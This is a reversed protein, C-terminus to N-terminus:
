CSGPVFSCDDALVKDPDRAVIVEPSPDSAVVGPDGGYNSGESAEPGSCKRPLTKRRTRGDPPPLGRSRYWHLVARTATDRNCGLKAAIEQILFQQDWLEKARGALQEPLTPRALRKKCSRGDPPPLGRERHWRAVAEAVINRNWGVEAAIARYTLGQDWLAKVQDVIVTDPDPERFDIVIETGQYPLDGPTRPPGSSAMAGLAKRLQVAGIVFRGQMYHRQRDPVRIERVWIAGGVLNRLALAAAPVCGRLSEALCGFQQEVWEMTPEPTPQTEDPRLNDLRAVLATRDRRREALRTQVKPSAVATEISDVLRAIKRDLEAVAREMEQLDTPRRQNQERWVTLTEQLVLVKWTASALIQQGIIELIMREARERRIQTKCECMGNDWNPCRLYKGHAGSVRFIVKCAECRVLGSLLHRPNSAADGTRSGRLKGDPLRRNEQVRANEALRSAAADMWEDSIIGLEPFTRTWKKSAEEPREEQSVQGTLPNRINKDKGWTWVGVYKKNKLLETVQQHHWYRTTARHDKPAGLHNLTRAIWRVSRKEGVFWHFIRIVWPATEDDIVYAMRPKAHRGKRASESGPIPVSKFGFYYDGVCFGALVTGEQGRFVNESLEKIYREHLVSFITALVEWGDRNSDVGETVSIIRVRYVYVLKKLVPMTIVSERALRSLSHFYVVRFRGTAAAALMAELGARHLKTGSIAEDAFELEPAISHGNRAACERCKRQQDPISEERQSESSYRAYSASPEDSPPTDDESSDDSLRRRLGTGSHNAVVPPADEHPHDTPQVSFTSFGIGFLGLWGSLVVVLWLIALAQYILAQTVFAQYVLPHPFHASRVGGEGSAEQHNKWSTTAFLNAITFGISVTSQALVTDITLSSRKRVASTFRGSGTNLEAKRPPPSDLCGHNNCYYEAQKFQAHEHGAWQLLVCGFVYNHGVM